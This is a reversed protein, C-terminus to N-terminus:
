KGYKKNGYRKVYRNYRNKDIHWVSVVNNNKPNIASVIQNQSIKKYSPWGRNDYKVQTKIAKTHLNTHLAGKTINRERMQKVAHITTKYRGDRYPVYPISTSRARYSRFGRFIINFLKSM